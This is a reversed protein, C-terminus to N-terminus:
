RAPEDAGPAPPAGHLLAILQEVAEGLRPGFGLLLLDDMAVVRRARGAPTGALAPDALLGDIGGALELSRAPLLLVEPAAALASEATLPAYGDLTALVNDAGALELMAAAPTDRGAAHLSRPGRADLLLVRPRTAGEHLRLRAADVRQREGGALAQAEATRDLAAGIALIRACTGAVGPPADFLRVDVGAARLQELVAPPGAEPGALLADALLALLGEASLTRAYGLSARGPPPPPFTSGDDAAVVRAGAGLACAIETVAGGVCALRAGDPLPQQARAGVALALVSALVLFKMLPEPLFIAPRASPCPRAGPADV